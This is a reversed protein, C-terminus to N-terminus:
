PAGASGGTRAQRAAAAAAIPEWLGRLFTEISEERTLRRAAGPEVLDIVIRTTEPELGRNREVTPHGLGRRRAISALFLINAAVLWIDAGPGVIRPTATVPDGGAGTRSRGTAIAWPDPALYRVTGIGTFAAAATCMSCPEQSSWLTCRELPRGEAVAALVNLEAHALPSGQLIDRGGAPDYARNRGEAVVEGREDTLVAGVALGGALFSHYALEICRRAPAALAPWAEDFAPARAGDM